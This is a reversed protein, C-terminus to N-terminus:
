IEALTKSLPYYCSGRNRLRNKARANVGAKWIADVVADRPLASASHGNQSFSERVRREIRAKEFPSWKLGAEIQHLVEDGECFDGTILLSKIIEGKLSIYTRLLGAGTKLVSMGTMDPLPSRQFIWDENLYKDRALKQIRDKESDTWPQTAFKSGFANEFAKKVRQRVEDVAVNRKLERSVTTIRQAVSDIQHKDSIKEVPIKLVRLMLSIDLGVLLSTHFMMAGRADYTVGLGAIKKGNVELDNKSRFKADIGLEKLTQIVPESFRKYVQIPKTAEGNLTAPAAFCLGLQERGMLIAGGGTPRRSFQIKFERCADLNLEAEINQFRGVLACHSKYTYLRLTPEAPTGDLAYGGMLFEDAALGTDASVNDDEIYRWTM